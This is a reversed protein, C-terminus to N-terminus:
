GNMGKTWIRYFVSRRHVPRCLAPGDGGPVRWPIETGVLPLLKLLVFAVLVWCAGLVEARGKAGAALTLGALVYFGMEYALSWYVGDVSQVDVFLHLM